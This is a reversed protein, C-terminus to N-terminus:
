ALETALQDLFNQLAVVCLETDDNTMAELRNHSVGANLGRLFLRRRRAPWTSRSRLPTRLRTPAAPLSCPM